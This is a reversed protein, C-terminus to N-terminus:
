NPGAVRGNSAAKAGPMSTGVSAKINGSSSVYQGSIQGNGEVKVTVSVSAQGEIKATIQDPKVTAEVPGGQAFMPTRQMGSAVPALAPHVAPGVQGSFNDVYGSAFAPLARPPTAQDVVWQRIGGRATIWHGPLSAKNLSAAEGRGFAHGDAIPSASFSADGPMAMTPGNGFGPRYAAFRAKNKDMSSLGYITGAMMAAGAAAAVGTAAAGMGAFVGETGAAAAPAANGVISGLASKGGSAVAAGELAAAAASLEAASTDLATASTGLGFGNMLQYSAYGAGGLAAAGTVAGGTMALMPHDKLANALVDIGSALGSLGGAITKMGDGTLTTELNELSANLATLGVTPDSTLNRHYIDDTSGVQNTLGEDKHLRSRSDAQMIENAFMNGNQNRFMTGLAKALELRDDTKVGKAMMAPLAVKEAWELPDRLALDTNSVAGAKWSVVNGAKKIVKKDDLLGYREWEEAQKKDNVKGMIISTFANAATGARDGGQAGILSPAIRSLFRMSYNPLSGKAQQAFAYLQEPNFVGGSAVMAPIMANAESEFNEPKTFREEFTKAFARGVDGSTGKIHEGGSAKLVSMAKQMFELHDMAHEVSGFAPTTESIVKMNDLYTATPLRSVVESSRRQIDAIQQPTRGANQLGVIEHQYEAGAHLTKEIGSVVSHAGVYAAAGGLAYNVIGHHAVGHARAEAAKEAKTHAAAARNEANAQHEISRTTNDIVSKLRAQEAAVRALPTGFGEAAHKADLMATKSREFASSAKTVAAQASTYAVQLARTPKEAEKMAKAAQEVAVRQANFKARADSFGTRTSQLKDLARLQSNAQEITKSMREIDASVKAGKGLQQFKGAIKTFVDGTGDKATIIAEATIIRDSM